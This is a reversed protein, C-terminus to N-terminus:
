VERNLSEEKKNFEEFCALRTKEFLWGVIKASKVPAIKGLLRLLKADNGLVKYPQRKKMAYVIKEAMKSASSCFRKIIKMSKEDFVERDCDKSFFINTLTFGPLYTGVFIKKNESQLIKSYSVLASKSSSYASQGPVSFLAGASCNNIIAGNKQSSIYDYLANVCHVVSFFNTNFVREVEEFPVDHTKLFPIMTGANNIIVNYSNKELFDKLRLWDEAKSVDAVFYSFRDRFDRFLDQQERLKKENRAVGLVRCNFREILIKAIEFGIGSSSGTLVVNSGYLWNKM